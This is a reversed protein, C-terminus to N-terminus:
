YPYHHIHHLRTFFLTAGDNNTIHFDVVIRRPYASPFPPWPIPRCPRPIPSTAAAIYPEAVAKGIKRKGVVLCAIEEASAGMLEGLGKYKEALLAAIAASVGPCQTIVASFFNRPDARTEKKSTKVYASYSTHITSADFCLPDAAVQKALTTLYDATQATDDTLMLAIGYRMTLRNLITWLEQITKRGNLRDLPGEIIYLPKAGVQACTALLRTRQERYRGDTLSSELDAVAKREAIVVIKQLPEEGTASTSASASASSCCIHADGVDLQKVVVGEDKGILRILERERNDLILSM